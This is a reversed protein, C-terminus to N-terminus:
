QSQLVSKNEIFQQAEENLCNNSLYSRGALHYLLWGQKTREVRNIDQWLIKSKVYYSTSSVSEEDITLTLEGNAAKSIMQRALWWSKQFRLSLAEIIGLGVIFWAIYPSVDTFYYVFLGFVALIISKLYLNKPDGKTHSEDFTEIFHNKDLVYTTSFYFPTTM